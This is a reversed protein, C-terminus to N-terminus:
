RLVRCRDIASETDFEVRAAVSRQGVDRGARVAVRDDGGNNGLELSDRSTPEAVSELASIVRASFQQWIM